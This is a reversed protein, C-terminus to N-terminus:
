VEMLKNIDLSYYKLIWDNCLEIHEKLTVGNGCFKKHTHEPIPVVVFYNCHHGVTRMESSLFDPILEFYGLGRCRALKKRHNKIAIDTKRYERHYEKHCDKCYYQNKSFDTVPLYRKCKNCQKTNGWGDVTPIM